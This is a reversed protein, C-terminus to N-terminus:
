NVLQRLFEELLNAVVVSRYKATSRIDDIPRAETALAARAAAILDPLTEATLTQNLLAQEVAACRAPTERLSAAGIRIDQIRREEDESILALCALAVKSIAQANRTGVKRAYTQYAAFKRPISISYLLEDPALATKKYGLHFMRYPMTRTGSASILTLTADYALLAPPSDAAPSANVINGGLTGRNQNAISGTWSAAQALLPFNEAIAASYRIDTFTTGSGITIDTPTTTIFRLERLHNISLLNRQALRGASLAVMLETGGAIPTYRGPDLALAELVAPLTPPAILDYEAANSRM